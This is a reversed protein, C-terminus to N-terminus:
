AYYLSVRGVRIPQRAVLPAFGPEPEDPETEEPVFTVQLRTPDWDSRAELTRVVDGIELAYHLGSGSHTADTRSAEAVGFMPLLGAYLEPHEAPNAGPPLNVYVAYSTPAGAGTINEINLYVRRDARAAGLLSRAPGAPQSVALQTTTSQGQLAVEGDTAGVMEPIPHPPPPEMAIGRPAGVPAGGAPAPFPDAVDDYQYGLPSATTDVVQSPTLTVAAGTADHLKFGLSTQWKPDAPDLHQANRQRWVVWLRDLNCHHLWFIPDLGATNFSGMFGGVAVHISGHPTAELAGPPGANHNFLTAPGGFGPDGGTAQAAFWQDKLANLSVSAATAVDNGGNGRLRSPIRLPNPKGNPMSPARFAPPLKRANPNAADSYNWYPLAWDAPGGLHQVTAAVVQEFCALYMRHWPLFYWSAHQCQAWFTQQDSASPLTDGPKANPDSGRLYDHIAAQYRWSTPDNVQRTQMEAIARAYWDITPDWDGGPLKWVNRRVRVTGPM